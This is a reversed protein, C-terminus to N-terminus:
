SFKSVLLSGGWQYLKQPRFKRVYFVSWTLYHINHMDLFLPKNGDYDVEIRDHFSILLTHSM